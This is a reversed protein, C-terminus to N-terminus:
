GGLISVLFKGLADGVLWTCVVAVVTCVAAELIRITAIPHRRVFEGSRGGLTSERLKEVAM